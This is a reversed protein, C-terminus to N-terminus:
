GMVLFGHQWLDGLCEMGLGSLWVLVFPMPLLVWYRSRDPLALHFAGVAAAIGAGLVAALNVQEAPLMLRAAIDHRLGSWGVAVGMVVGALTLWLLAARWPSM